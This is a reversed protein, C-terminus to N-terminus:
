AKYKRADNLQTKKDKYLKTIIAGGNKDTLTAGRTGKQNIWFEVRAGNKTKGTTIIM